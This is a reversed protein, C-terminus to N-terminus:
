AEILSNPDSTTREAVRQAEEQRLRRWRWRAYIALAVLCVVVQVTAVTIWPSRAALAVIGKFVALGGLAYVFGWMIWGPVAALTYRLWRWGILGASFNVATQFGVTLFSLPILPWGWRELRDKAKLTSESAARKAWGAKIVGALVGRGVWYTCQSRVLAVATLFVVAFWFPQALVWDLV